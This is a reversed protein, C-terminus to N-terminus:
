PVAQPNLALDNVAQADEYTSEPKGTLIHDIAEVGQMFSHDQNSVEYRWGGFRGRSYIGLEKLRPQVDALVADRRITPVPYGRELSHQWRNVVASRPLAFTRLLAEVCTGALAELDVRHSPHRNIECLLSWQRAPDPVNQRAYNSLVSVRHFPVDPDPFYLWYKEDLVPPRPWEFGVGVLCTSAYDLRSARAGLDPRDTIMPLLRDLPISSVIAQYRIMSGDTLTATRAGADIAAVEHGMRLHASPLRDALAHWIAGTGGRAPYRFTTSRDWGPDDSQLVITRLIQRLDVLPVNSNRSGSRSETWGCGLEGPARGWMKTNFPAFFVDVLGSGFNGQLWQQFNAAPATPVQLDLLGDLCRLLQDPPLHRINRQIPFPIWRGFTYIWGAREHEEWSAGLLDELLDDFLPYHSYLVHGGLDWTFGAPDRISGALGGARSGGDVLLWHPGSEQQRVELRWAAGLGTPGAGVVLVDVDAPWPAM